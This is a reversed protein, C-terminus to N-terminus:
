DILSKLEAATTGLCRALLDLHRVPSVMSLIVATRSEGTKSRYAGIGASCLATCPDALYGNSRYLSLVASEMQRSSVVTAYLGQRLLQLEHPELYFNGGRDCTQLFALTQELGLTDFILRELGSPVAYDCQPTDTPIVAADTRLLGKHILSWCAANDNCCCLINHIPLGMKRGYHCAMAASFDGSPVVLDVKQDFSASGDRILEGFIGFLVAIRSATVVWDTPVPCIQDSQRIAKEIGRALREFHWAPNHWTEAALTRNGLNVMKVPYRGIAFSIAWGDLKTGFLLNIVEAVNECFSRDALQELQDRSWVPLHMPVFYGGDSARDENLVHAATYTDSKTRTTVYLM